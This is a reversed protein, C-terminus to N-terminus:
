STNEQVSNSHENLPDPSDTRNSITANRLKDLLKILYRKIKAKDKSIIKKLTDKQKAGEDIEEFSEGNKRKILEEVTGQHICYVREVIKRKEQQLRQLEIDTAEKLV